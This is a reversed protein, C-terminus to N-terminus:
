RGKDGAKNLKQRINEILADIICGGALLCFIMCAICVILDVWYQNILIKPLYSFIDNLLNVLRALVSIEILIAINKGM